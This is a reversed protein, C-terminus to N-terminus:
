TLWRWAQLALHYLIIVFIAPLMNINSIKHKQGYILNMGSFFLIVYGIACLQGILADSLFTGAFYAILTIVFQILAVPISALASAKGYTAGFMLAFPFDICSKLYLQSSDGKAGLLISGCIQLGGISFFLTTDTLGNCFNSQSDTLNGIKNELRTKEGILTGIILSFIILVTNEGKVGSDSIIFSNELFGILSIIMVSIGLIEMNKLIVKKKFVSGLVGGFSIAAANAFIGM